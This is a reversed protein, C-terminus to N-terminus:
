ICGPLWSIESEIEKVWPHCPNERILFFLYKGDPLDTDMRAIQPEYNKLAFVDEFM